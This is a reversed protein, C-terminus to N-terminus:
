NLVHYGGMCGNRRLWGEVYECLTNLWLGYVWEEAVVWLGYVWEEAGMSWVGMGGCGEVYECLTNVWLGYVWEEAVGM